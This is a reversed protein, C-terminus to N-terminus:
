APVDIYVTVSDACATSANCAKVKAYYRHNRIADCVTILEAYSMDILVVTPNLM